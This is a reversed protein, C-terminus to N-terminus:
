DGPAAQPQALLGAKARGYAQLTLIAMRLGLVFLVVGILVSAWDIINAVTPALTKLPDQTLTKAPGGLAAQLFRVTQVAIAALTTVIMFLAPVLTYRSPAKVRALHITILMLALGALLQNSGGFFLWINNWSGSVAMIWPLLLGIFTAVHKQALISEGFVEVSVLRWFRTVLAQVTIAYIVLVTGFFVRIANDSMFAGLIPKTILTAGFVWSGVSAGGLEAIREPSLVMYSALSVLALLGEGLMAGAGVPHADPEIDLQKATSSSSVLSHWGSIAGCAIATFLVPWMPNGGAAFSGKPGWFGVYAPQALTVGTLPTILAGVLIVLVAFMAPFFSVYNFPQIFTPLPLISGVYLIVCCLAAWLWVNFNLAGQATLNFKVAQGISTSGLWFSLIMLAFAILTVAGVNMRRKYLLQGCIVGTLIIGATAVFSGAFTNWFVAILQIFTASIILLYFLIFGLLTSRGAAGTFEYTIPGFSRGQNRVSLMIAGYDQLWGIFFNGFIIWLLAPVWGYQIAIFPGLIPGLAAVSKYQYGWLVYRSVPFYEVGDTYMHAPTTRNPDPRWVTRDYWRGYGWYAIGYAILALVVFMAPSNLM